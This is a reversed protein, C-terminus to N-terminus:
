SAELEFLALARERLAELATWDPRCALLHGRGLLEGIHTPPQLTQAPQLGVECDIVGPWRRLEGADPVRHLRGPPPHWYELLTPLAQRPRFDGEGLAHLALAQGLFDVGTCAPVLRSSIMLGSPRASLEILVFRGDPTWIGDAHFVSGDVQLLRLAQGLQAEIEPWAPAPLRAPARYALEVRHPLPSMHKERVLTLTLQGRQMAGDIGLVQGAVFAELLLGDAYCPQALLAPGQQQWEALDALVRVGRSGAGQTPKLVLPFPWASPDAVKAQAPQEFAKQWPLNVGRGALAQHFLHKDTCLRAASLSVGRLGLADHVAAQTTLWRGIPAPLTLDVGRARAWAVVAEADRIDLVQAEDALALGPAQPNGDLALVRGGLAQARRIASLQEPGAGVALCRKGALM